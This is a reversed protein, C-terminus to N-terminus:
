MTTSATLLWRVVSRAAPRCRHACLPAKRTVESIHRNWSMCTRPTLMAHVHLHMCHVQQSSVRRQVVCVVRGADTCSARASFKLAIEFSTCSGRRSVSPIGLV